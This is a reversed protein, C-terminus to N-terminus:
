LRSSGFEMQLFGSTEAGDRGGGRDAGGWLLMATHNGETSGAASNRDAPPLLVEPLLM